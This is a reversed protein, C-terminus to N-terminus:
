MRDFLCFDHCIEPAHFNRGTRFIAAGVSLGGGCIDKYVTQNVEFSNTNRRWTLMVQESPTKTPWQALPKERCSSLPIKM